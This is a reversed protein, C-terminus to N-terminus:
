APPASHPTPPTGAAFAFQADRLMRGCCWRAYFRALLMGSVRQLPSTPLAYEIFVSLRSGDGEPAIRFGMRYAGIVLLHPEGLTAWAKFTPPERESVAEALRLPIGLLRGEMRIVSGIARGGRADTTITMSTGMMGMSRQEMHRSLRHPDDLHEFVALPSGAVRGAAEFGLPYTTRV